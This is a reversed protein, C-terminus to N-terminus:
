IAFMRSAEVVAENGFFAPDVCTVDTVVADTGTGLLCGSEPRSCVSVSAVRVVCVYLNCFLFTLLLMNFTMKLFPSM